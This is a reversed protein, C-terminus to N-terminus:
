SSGTNGSSGLVPSPLHPSQGLKSTPPIVASISASATESAVPAGTIWPMKNQQQQQPQAQVQSQSRSQPQAQAQVQPQVQHQHQNHHTHQQSVLPTNALHSRAQAQAPNFITELKHFNNCLAESVDDARKGPHKTAFDPRQIESAAKLYRKELTRIKGEIARSTKNPLIDRIIKEHCDKKRRPVNFLKCNNPEFLWDILATEEWPLWLSYNARSADDTGAAHAIAAISHGNASSGSSSTARKTNPHVESRTQRIRPPSVNGQIGGSGRRGAGPHQGSFTHSLGSTLHSIFPPSQNLHASSTNSPTRMHRAVDSGPGDASDQASVSALTQSHESTMPHSSRETDGASGFAKNGQASSSSTPM